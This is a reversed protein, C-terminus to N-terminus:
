YFSSLAQQQSQLRAMTSELAAFRAELQSQYRDLRFERDAIQRDFLKVRSNITDKRVDFLGKSTAGSADTYGKVMKDIARVLKDALGSDLTTDVYYAPTGIAAGGNNFGDTDIFLDAFKTLDEDMKASMKSDNILLTGDKQLDIGLLKLTGFGATDGGIQAVTSGFLENRIMSQISRLASDGFLEGGAGKDESYKNQDGIFTMVKNFADVFDKLKAKIADKNPDVTFSTVKAPDATLTSISVGTLVDSFDNDSRTVTLGDIVAIANNGVTLNNASQAVGLPDPGTADITLAAVTSSIGTIRKDLGTSQGSLVLQYSPTTATGTNVVSAAVKGAAVTNIASAIDNLSSEAQTVSADYTIGDYTFSIGEGDASALPVTPDTIGNFAWRDSKALQNVTQTHSGAIANGSAKFSATTQDSSTVTYALFESPSSLEKAKTRLTNVYGELTSLLSLKKKEATKKTELATIPISEVRILADIIGRTDL